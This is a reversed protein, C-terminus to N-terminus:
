RSMHKGMQIFNIYKSIMCSNLRHKAKNLVYSHNIDKYM